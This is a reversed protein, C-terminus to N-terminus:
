ADPLNDSEPADDAQAQAAQVPSVASVAAAQTNLRDAEAQALAKAKGGEGKVADFREGIQEGAENVVIFNGVPVHQVKYVKPAPTFPASSPVSGFEPKAAPVVPAAEKGKKQAATLKPSGDKNAEVMWLGLDEDDPIEFRDGAERLHGYFGPKMAIVQTM